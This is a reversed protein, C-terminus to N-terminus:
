AGQKRVPREGDAPTESSAQAPFDAEGLDVSVSTTASGESEADHGGFDANGYSPGLARGVPDDTEVVPDDKGKVEAEARSWHESHRGEPRGCEEWLAYARDRMKQDNQDM